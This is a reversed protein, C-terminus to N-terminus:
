SMVCRRELVIEYTRRWKDLVTEWNYEREVMARGTDGYRRRLSARELLHIVAEALHAPSRPPVLLGTKGHRVTDRLGGVDSAVVPLRMASSELAAAGFSECVSPIVSVDWDALLGPLRRRPQQPLWTIRGGIGQRDALDQCLAKQAGDGIMTFRTAPLAALVGPMAEVLTPAGYVERFGKFFGVMHADGSARPMPRSCFLHLEVGLPLIEIRRVDIGGFSAVASAFWPGWATVCAAHRLMTLRAAFLAETPNGEGPPPVIDSGAPTAVLCGREIIEPTLGWDALFLVNVIDFSRMYDRLRRHWRRRWPFPNTLGAPPVQFREVTVGTIDAPKHTVVHVIAGRAALGSSIRQVHVSGADGLLCIKM